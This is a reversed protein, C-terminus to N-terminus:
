FSPSLFPLPLRCRHTNHTHASVAAFQPMNSIYLTANNESSEFCGLKSAPELLFVKMQLDLIQSNQKQCISSYKKYGDFFRAATPLIDDHAIGWSSTLGDLIDSEHNLLTLAHEGAVYYLRVIGDSIRASKILKILGVESSNDAHVGCCAETDTDAINVVRLENGPVVGGQYLHFGYQREAEDKAMFSKTIPKCRQVIRNAENEIAMMDAHSLSQYHTIDM